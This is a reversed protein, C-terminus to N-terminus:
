SGASESDQKREIEEDLAEAETTSKAALISAYWGVRDM